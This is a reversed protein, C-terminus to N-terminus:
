VGERRASLLEKYSKESKVHIAEGGTIEEWRRIATDIYKPELEIGYCIRGCKEAAILTTGSGLFADLVIQGRNTVDLIADRVMEMPKVTPHFRLNNKEKGFSNVGAYSWLNTRYRGHSGLEVNNIHPKKGNKFVFVLEHQSRYLSGMGGNQKGWVCLNKLDTYIVLGANLMEKMHRWDICQFHISGDTSYKVQLTMAKILFEQFEESSMEGSAMAFEKHKVSGKNCVHGDIKVNYPPDTFIAIAKKDEFLTEYTEEEISSGCIIRHKGLQWIYGIKSVVEEEPIFPVANAEEDPKSDKETLGPDVIVDIDVLDFGTVELSFDLELKELESFELKLLDYDWLGNETLKNDAIRYARKQADSLHKLRIVPVEKMGLSKAALWRGHGALILNKEDILIPNVFGFQLMSNAIQQRQKDKHIKTNKEYPILSNAEVQEVRLETKKM